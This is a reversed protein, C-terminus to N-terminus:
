LALECAYDTERFCYGLYPLFKCASFILLEMISKQVIFLTVETFLRDCINIMHPINLALKM